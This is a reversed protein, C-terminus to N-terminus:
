QEYAQQSFMGTHPAHTVQHTWCHVYVMHGSTEQKRGRGPPLIQKINNDRAVNQLNILIM